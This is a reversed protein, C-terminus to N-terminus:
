GAGHALSMVGHGNRPSHARRWTQASATVRKICLALSGQSQWAAPGNGDWDSPVRNTVGREQAV